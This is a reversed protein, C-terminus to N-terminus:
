SAGSLRHELRVFAAEGGPLRRVATAYPAFGHRGWFRRARDDHQAVAARVLPWRRHQAPHALLGAPAASGYGQGQADGRILLLGLWGPPGGDPPEDMFEAAGPVAGGATRRIALMTRSSLGAVHWDRQLAALGYGGPGQVLETRAPNTAFVELM